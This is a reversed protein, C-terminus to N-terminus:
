CNNPRNYLPPITPCKENMGSYPSITSYNNLSLKYKGIIQCYELEPDAQKCVDPRRDKYERDFIDLQYIDRPTFEKSNINLGNFIGAAKYIAIVFSSCVYNEGDKYEWEDLEPMAMLQEFTVGRKVAEASLQAINLNKTNLRLNLAQILFKNTLDTDFKDVISFILLFVESQIFEPTNGSPVDFWHFIFNNYGYNLGEVKRFWELAKEYNFKKRYEERLPLWGVNYGHEFKTKIWDRYRTRVIGKEESELIFLEGDIRFAM